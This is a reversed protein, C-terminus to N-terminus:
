QVWNHGCEVCSYKEVSRDQKVGAHEGQIVLVTRYAEKFDCRPCDRNVVPRTTKSRDMEYVPEIRPRGERKVEITDTEVRAGCKPCLYGQPTTGMFSGCGDCFRM